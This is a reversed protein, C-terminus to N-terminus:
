AGLLRAFLGKSKEKGADRPEVDYQIKISGNSSELEIEDGRWGSGEEGESNLTDSKVGTSNTDTPWDAFDGVFCRRTKDAESFTTLEAKLADSFRVSGNRTRITLPGRFSRPIHLTIPGNSSHARFHIPTRFPAPGAHLRAVTSGNSSKLSLNVRKQLNQRRGGEADGGVVFLDVDMSGNSTHLFVNRRTAETEDAALPPLMPAPIKLRPDIVYTGKISGNGRSLSLFNTPKVSPPPVPTPPLSSSSPSPPPADLSPPRKASAKSDAAGSNPNSYAPPPDDSVTEARNVVIDSQEAVEKSKDSDPIIIM